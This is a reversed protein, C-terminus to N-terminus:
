GGRSQWGAMWSSDLGARHSSVEDSIDEDDMEIRMPEHPPTIDMLRALYPSRSLLVICIFHPHPSSHATAPKTQHTPYSPRFTPSKRRHLHYPRDRIVRSAWFLDSVAVCDGVCCYYSRDAVNWRGEPGWLVRHSVSCNGSRGFVKRTSVRNALDFRLRESSPDNSPRTEYQHVLLM